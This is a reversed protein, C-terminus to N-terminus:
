NEYEIYKYKFDIRIRNLRPNGSEIGSIKKWNIYQDASIMEYGFGQGEMYSILRKITNKYVEDKSGDFGSKINVLQVYPDYPLKHYNDIKGSLYLSSMRIQIDTEPSIMVRYCDDDMIDTLIDKIDDFINKLDLYKISENINDKPYSIEISFIDGVIAPIEEHNTKYGVSNIRSISKKIKEILKIKELNNDPLSLRLCADLNRYELNKGAYNEEGKKYIKYYLGGELSDESDIMDYGYEDLVDQFIDKILNFDDDMSEFKKWEIIRKM